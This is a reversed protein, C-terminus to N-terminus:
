AQPVLGRLMPSERLAAIMEVLARGQRDAQEGFSATLRHGDMFGDHPVHLGPPIVHGAFFSALVNRLDDLALFHHLSASTAVIVVAKGQLPARTEGWMGRPLHDLLHKLPAAFSARYVPSGLVVGDAAEIADIAQELDVEALSMLQTGAGVGEAALLVESLAAATRGRGQPSGDLAVIRVHGPESSSQTAVQTGQSAAHSPPSPM